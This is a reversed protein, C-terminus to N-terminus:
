SVIEDRVAASHTDEAGRVEDAPAYAHDAHASHDIGVQSTSTDQETLMVPVPRHVAADLLPAAASSDERGDAPLAPAQPEFAARPLALM